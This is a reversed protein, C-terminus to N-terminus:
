ASAVTLRNFIRFYQKDPQIKKPMFKLNLNLMQNLNKFGIQFTIWYSNIVYYHGIVRM